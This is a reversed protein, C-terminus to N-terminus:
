LDAISLPRRGSSGAALQSLLARNAPKYAIVVRLPANVVAPGVVAAQGPLTSATRAAVRIRPAARTARVTVRTMSASAQGGGMLVLCVAVGGLLPRMVTM